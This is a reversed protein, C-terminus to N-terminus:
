NALIITPNPYDYYVEERLYLAFFKYSLADEEPVWSYAVPIIRDTNTTGVGIVLPLGYKNTRFTADIILLADSTFRKAPLLM